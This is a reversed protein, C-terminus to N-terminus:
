GAVRRARLLPPTALLGRPRLSVMSVIRALISRQRQIGRSRPLACTTSFMGAKVSLTMFLPLLIQSVRTTTPLGSVAVGIRLSVIFNIVTLGVQFTGGEM